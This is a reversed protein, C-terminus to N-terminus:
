SHKGSSFFNLFFAWLTGGLLSCVAAAGLIYAKFNELLTLRAELAKQSERHEQLLSLVSDLKGELRGLDRNTDQNSM